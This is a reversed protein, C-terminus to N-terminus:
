NIVSLCYQMLAAPFIGLGLILLGNLSVVLGIDKGMNIAKTNVAKEFYMYWIVRLYYFAGIVSSLVMVIAFWTFGAEVVTNIITLKAFFGVWPPIGAMGLMIFLMLMALWPNRQGLGKFDELSEAEKQDSLIIVLGFAGAAM